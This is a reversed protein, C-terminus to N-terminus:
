LDASASDWLYGMAMCIMEGDGYDRTNSCLLCLVVFRQKLCMVHCIRSLVSGVFGAHVQAHEAHM